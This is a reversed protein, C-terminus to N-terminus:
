SPGNRKRPAPRQRRPTRAPGPRGAAARPAAGRAPTAPSPARGRPIAPKARASPAASAPRRGSRPPAPAPAAARASRRPAVSRRASPAAPSRSARPSAPVPELIVRVRRGLLRALLRTRQRAAWVELRADERAAARITVVMGARTVRVGRVLQYQSRDLAEAIRLLAALWRVTDREDLTLAAFARDSKRPRAKGHYRAVTAVVEVEDASLGRLNGNRIIYYSHETHEDHGIVSGIDHLLGAYQLLRRVEDDLGHERRFADFLGLALAAVHRAHPEDGRFRALLRLVSRLKLDEVPDLREIEKAHRIIYDALLGERVGFDSVTLVDLDFARLAQVLVIAGPILIEARAADLGPLRLREALSMGELTRTVREISKRELRRGNVHRLPPGGDFHRLVHALAHISGSSGYARRPAFAAISAVSEELTRRVHRTLRALAAPDPPDGLPRLEALRLAGLPLSVVKLMRDRTCVVLQLSGGGIDLLLVPEDPLELANRVGLWILRGEERAPIVRPTVGAAQRAARVFEGGNKAERVAATATCIVREAGLSRALAVFRALSDATRAIADARLRGGAFSGRGVQVVERERDLVDFGGHATAEAVVVHISNTGIDIAAIRV